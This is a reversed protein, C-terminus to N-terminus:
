SAGDAGHHDKYQIQSIAVDSRPESGAVRQERSFAVRIAM